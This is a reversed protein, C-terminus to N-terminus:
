SLPCVLALSCRQCPAVAVHRGQISALALALSILQEGGRLNKMIPNGAAAHMDCVCHPLDKQACSQKIVMTGHPLLNLRIMFWEDFYKTVGNLPTQVGYKFTLRLHSIRKVHSDLFRIWARICGRYNTSSLHSLRVLEFISEAYYISLVDKRLARQVFALPLNPQTVSWLHQTDTRGRYLVRVPVPTSSIVAARYINNRIEGPMTLLTHEAEYKEMATSETMDCEAQERLPEATM